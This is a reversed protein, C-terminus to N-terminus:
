GDKRLFATELSRVERSNHRSSGAVLLLISQRVSALASADPVLIQGTKCQCCVVEVILLSLKVYLLLLLDQWIRM